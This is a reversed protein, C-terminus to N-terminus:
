KYEDKMISYSVLDCIKKESTVAAHRLIGEYKMNCKQMVKGSNPNAVDHQARIIDVKVEEFMFKIVASLAETMYGQNWWNFGICYGVEVSSLKENCDVISITGILTNSEKIEIGWCYFKPDAYRESWSTLTVVAENEEKYTYWTMHKTVKDDNAWNYFMASADDVNLRRLRLRESNLEVTSKHEM